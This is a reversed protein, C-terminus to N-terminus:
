SARALVEKKVTSQPVKHSKMGLLFRLPAIRRAAEYMLFTIAFAIAVILLYKVPIATQIRVVYYTVATLVLFHMLYFPYAAESLYNLVKGTRNLLLHGVGLIVLVWVWRDFEMAVDRLARPLTNDITYPWGTERMVELIVALILMWPWDRDIAKQYREDTMLLYGTIFVVLYYIPNTAGMFESRGAVAIPLGLLLLAMPKEFFRAMGQVAGQCRRARLLLFLPLAVLSFFFLFLIFWLHAPTFTGSRGTIDPGFTFFNAYHQWFSLTKGQAITNGYAVQTIYTMPPVFVAIGFLLPVLLRLGREGLYQGGSRKKLAFATSMGAIVFLLPMHYVDIFGAIKDCYYCDVTDKMFVVSDPNQVFVLLSHFPLVLLVALVRLWDLDYRRSSASPVSQTANM